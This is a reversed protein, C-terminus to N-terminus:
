YILWTPCHNIKLCLSLSSSTAKVGVERRTAWFFYLSFSSYEM